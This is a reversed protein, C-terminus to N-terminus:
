FAWLVSQMHFYYLLGVDSLLPFVAHACACTDTYENM